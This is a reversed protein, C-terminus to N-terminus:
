NYDSDLNEPEEENLKPFNYTELFTDMKDLTDLKNMVFQQEYYKRM